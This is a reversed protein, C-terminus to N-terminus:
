LGTCLAARGVGLRRMHLAPLVHPRWVQRDRRTILEAITDHGCLANVWFYPLGKVSGGSGGGRDDPSGFCALHLFLSGVAQDAM